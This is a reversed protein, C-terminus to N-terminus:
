RRGGKARVYKVVRFADIANHQTWVRLDELASRRTLTAMITPRWLKGRRRRREIVWLLESM